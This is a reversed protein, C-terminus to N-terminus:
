IFRWRYCRQKYQWSGWLSQTGKIMLSFFDEHNKIIEVATAVTECEKGIYKGKMELSISKYLQNLPLAAQSLAHLNIYAEHAMYRWEDELSSFFEDRQQKRDDKFKSLWKNQQRVSGLRQALKDVPIYYGARQDKSRNM